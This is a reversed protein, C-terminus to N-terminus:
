IGLLVTITFSVERKLVDQEIAAMMMDDVDFIERLKTKLEDRTVTTSCGEEETSTPHLATAGEQVLVERPPHLYFASYYVDALQQGEQWM